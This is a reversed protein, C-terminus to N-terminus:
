ASPPTEEIYPDPHSISVTAHRLNTSFAYARSDTSLMLTTIIRKVSAPNESSRSVADRDNFDKGRGILRCSVTVEKEEALLRFRRWRSEGQADLGAHAFFLSSPAPARKGEREGSTSASSTSNTGVDGAVSSEMKSKCYTNLLPIHSAEIWQRRTLRQAPWEQTRKILVPTPKSRDLWSHSRNVGVDRNSHRPLWRSVIMQSCIILYTM